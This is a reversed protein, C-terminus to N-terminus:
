KGLSTRMDKGLRAFTAEFAAHNKWQPFDPTINASPEALAVSTASAPCECARLVNM